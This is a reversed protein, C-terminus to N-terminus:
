YFNYIEIRQQTSFSGTPTQSCYISLDNSELLQLGSSNSVPSIQATIAHIRVNSGIGLGM